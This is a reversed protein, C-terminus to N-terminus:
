DRDTGPRSGEYAISQFELPFYQRQLGDIIEDDRIILGMAPWSKETGPVDVSVVIEWDRYGNLLAQLAKVVHPRLLELKQIELKHQYVGWNEDVLWYDGERFANEVALPRLLDGIRDYLAGWAREQDSEDNADM